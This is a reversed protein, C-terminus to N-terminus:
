QELRGSIKDVQLGALEPVPFMIERDGRRDRLSLFWCAHIADSEGLLMSHGLRIWTGLRGAAAAVSENAAALERMLQEIAIDESADHPPAVIANGAILQPELLEVLTGGPEGMSRASLLMTCWREDLRRFWVRTSVEPNRGFRSTISFISLLVAELNTM